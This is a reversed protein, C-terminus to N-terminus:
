DREAYVIVDQPSDPGGASTVLRVVDDQTAGFVEFVPFAGAGFRDVRDVSYRAVIGGRTVVEVVDDPELTSLRHFVGPDAASGAQGLLVTPGIWGPRGGDRLWGARAPDAPLPAAAGALDLHELASDVGAAPIRLEVPEVAILDATPVPEPALGQHHAGVVGAAGHGGPHQDSAGFGSAVGSILLGAAAVAVAAGAVRVAFPWARRGTGDRGDDHGADVGGDGDM